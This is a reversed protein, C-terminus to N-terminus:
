GADKTCVCYTDPSEVLEEFNKQQAFALNKVNLEFVRLM